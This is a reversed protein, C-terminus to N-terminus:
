ILNTRLEKNASTTAMLESDHTGNKPESLVKFMCIM